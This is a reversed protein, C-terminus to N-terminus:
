PRSRGAAVAALLVDLSEEPAQGATDVVVRAREWPEYERGVIEEWGPLPLGPVDVPRTAARRRHEARDSCRVEVEVVETGARLAADRWADRTVALPNVSEAVVTLGQRLHEEALAYGVVYGVPGVPHAALGSRVVAQEITDIRLHVAGIRAALLRSLTTKGSAPLGGVVILM